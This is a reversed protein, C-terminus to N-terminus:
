ARPSAPPSGKIASVCLFLGIDGPPVTAEEIELRLLPLFKRYRHYRHGREIAGEFERLAHPGRFLAWLHIDRFGRQELMARLEAPKFYTLVFADARHKAILATDTLTAMSDVSMRLVGGPKLVDAIVDLVIDRNAIHEFVSFSVVKDFEGSRFGGSEISTCRYELERGRAYVEALGRAREIESASVDIGVVRGAQRALLLDQPGGGCGVDLIADTPRIDLGDTLADFEVIKFPNRWLYRSPLLGSAILASRAIDRLAV